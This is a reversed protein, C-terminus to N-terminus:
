NTSTQVTHWQAKGPLKQCPPAFEKGDALIERNNNTSLYRSEVEYDKKSNSGICLVILFIKPLASIRYELILGLLLSLADICTHM